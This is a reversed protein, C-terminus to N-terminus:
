ENGTVGHDMSRAFQTHFKALIGAPDAAGYIASSVALMDAGAAILPASNEPTIGGIAVIPCSLGRRAKRLLDPTAWAGPIKTTTPFFAGFAVYNVGAAQMVRALALNDYCSAGIIAGSGLLTRATGPAPDDAGLHVGDAGAKRALEPDDNIIFPVGHERCLDRLSAARRMRVARTADKDRYQLACIGTSLLLSTRQRVRPFDMDGPTIAYVGRVPANIRKM